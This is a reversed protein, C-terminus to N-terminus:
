PCMILLFKGFLADQIASFQYYCLQYRVQRHLWFDPHLDGCPCAIKESLFTVQPCINSTEM